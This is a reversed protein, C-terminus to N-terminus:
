QTAAPGLVELLRQHSNQTDRPGVCARPENEGCPMTADRFSRRGCRPRYTMLDRCEYTHDLGFAHAIEMAATECTSRWRERLERTFVLVVANEIPDGNFPALGLVHAQGHHEAADGLLSPRGGLLAMMYGPQVPRREVIRVDYPAFHDRVCSVVRDWVGASGRFAPIEVEDIGVSHLIASRNESAEDLPSASLTAGERNLYVVRSPRPGDREAVRIPLYWPRAEEDGDEPSEGAQGCAALLAAAALFPGATTRSKM